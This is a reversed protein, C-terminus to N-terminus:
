LASDDADELSAALAAPADARVFRFGARELALPVARRGGVMTDALEGLHQRLREEDLGEWVRRGLVAAVARAFDGQRIDGPAVLNFPGELARELVFRYAAVADDVHVWSFWQEGDGMPGRFYLKWPTALNKFSRPGRGIVIGSRLCAVRVGAAAAARAQEEWGRCVRALFHEGPEADEAYRRDSRDFPYLEVSSACLLVRPRRAAPAAAIAAVLQRTGEIRSESVRRRHLASFRWSAIPEGALHIVADCGAVADAWDGPVTTRGGLYEIGEPGARMARSLAVVRHGAAVLAESLPAGVLGSAGTMFIRM